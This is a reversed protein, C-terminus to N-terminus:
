IFHLKGRHTNQLSSLITQMIIQVFTAIQSPQINKKEKEIYFM